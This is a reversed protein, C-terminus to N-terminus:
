AANELMHREPLHYTPVKVNNVNRMVRRYAETWVDSLLMVRLNL